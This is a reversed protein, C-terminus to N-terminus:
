APPEWGASLGVTQAAASPPEVTPPRRVYEVYDADFDADTAILGLKVARANGLLRGLEEVTPRRIDNLRAVILLGDVRGCLAIGDGAGLLPPGDVLVIDARDRLNALVGTVAASGVLEGVNHAPSGSPLVQLEGAGGMDFSGLTAESSEPEVLPVPVLAEDLGARGLAVDTLGPSRPLAFFRELTPRRLDLDVLIVRVGNRALAVAFNAITTSKGQSAGASTVMVSRAEHELNFFDLNTRLVRFAEAQSGYPDDRMILRNEIRLRRPPRPLRALLPLGLARTLESASRVRRDLAEMVFAVLLAFIAGLGLGIVANRVPGVGTQIARPAASILVADDPQLAQEVRLDREKRILAARLAADGPRARRVALQELEGRVSARARAVSATDLKRKYITFARAFETALRMARSPDPDTVRFQLLDTNPTPKISTSRVLDLAPRNRVGAAQLAQAAVTPAAALAAQTNAARLAAPAGGQTQSGKRLLVKSTAAYPHDRQTAVLVLALPVIVMIPIVIPMRRSVVALYDHLTPPTDPTESRM